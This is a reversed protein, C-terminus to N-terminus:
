IVLLNNLTYTIKREKQITERLENLAHLLFVSDPGGSLGIVIVDGDRILDHTYINNKVQELIKNM